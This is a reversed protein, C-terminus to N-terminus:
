DILCVCVCSLWDIFVSHCESIFPISHFTRVERLSKWQAVLQKKRQAYENSRDLWDAHEVAQAESINLM